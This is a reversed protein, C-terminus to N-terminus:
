RHGRLVQQVNLLDRWGSAESDHDITFPRGRTAADMQRGAPCISQQFPRTAPLSWSTQDLRARLRIRRTRTAHAPEFEATAHIRFRPSKLVRSQVVTSGAAVATTAGTQRHVYFTVSEHVLGVGDSRQPSPGRRTCRTYAVLAGRCPNWGHTIGCDIPSPRGM